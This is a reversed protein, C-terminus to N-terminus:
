SGGGIRAARRERRVSARLGESELLLIREWEEPRALDRLRLMATFLESSAGKRALLAREHVGRLDATTAEPDANRSAIEALFSQQQRDLELSLVECRNILKLMAESRAPDAVAEQVYERTSQAVVQVVVPDYREDSSCASLSLWVGCALWVRMM